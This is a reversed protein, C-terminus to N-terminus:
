KMAINRIFILNSPLSSGDGILPMIATYGMTMIAKDEGMQVIEANGYDMDWQSPFEGLQEGAQNDEFFIEDGAVFDSKAYTAEINQPKAVEPNTEQHEEVEQASANSKSTKNNKENNGSVANEAADFAKDVAKEASREVNREVARKGADLAREGLRELWSQANAETAMGVVAFLTIILGLHKM